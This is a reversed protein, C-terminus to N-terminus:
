LFVQAAQASPLSFWVWLASVRQPSPSLPTPPWALRCHSQPVVPTPFLLPSNEFPHASQQKHPGPFCSHAPFPVDAPGTVTERGNSDAAGQRENTAKSRCRHSQRRGGTCAGAHDLGM